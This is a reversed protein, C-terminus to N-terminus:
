LRIGGRPITYTKKTKTSYKRKGKYSKKFSRKKGYSRGRSMAM